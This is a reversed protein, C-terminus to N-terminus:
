FFLRTSVGLRRRTEWKKWKVEAAVIGDFEAVLEDQEAQHARVRRSELAAERALSDEASKRLLSARAITLSLYEPSVAPALRTGVAPGSLQMKGDKIKARNDYRQLM